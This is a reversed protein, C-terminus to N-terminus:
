RRVRPQGRHPRAAPLHLLHVPLDVGHGAGGAGERVVATQPPRLHRRPGTGPVARAAPSGELDTRHATGRRQDLHTKTRYGGPVKDDMRSVYVFEGDPRGLYIGSFNAHLALQEYFYQELLGDDQSSVVESDALRQTLQAAGEAPALYGQADRISFTASTRWSTGPM